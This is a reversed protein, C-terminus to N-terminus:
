FLQINSDLGKDVINKGTVKEYIKRETHMTYKRLHKDLQAKESPDVLNSVSNM